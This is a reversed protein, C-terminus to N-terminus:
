PKFGLERQMLEIENSANKLNTNFSKYVLDSRVGLKVALKYDHWDEAAQNYSTKARSFMGLVVESFQTGDQIQKQVSLLLAEINLMSQYEFSEQDVIITPNVGMPKVPHTNCGIILWCVFTKLM